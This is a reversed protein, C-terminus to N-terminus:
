VELKRCMLEFEEQFRDQIYLPKKKERSLRIVMKHLYSCFKEVKDNAEWSSLGNQKYKRFLVEKEIKTLALNM